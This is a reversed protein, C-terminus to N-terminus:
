HHYDSIAYTTTYEVVMRDCGCHSRVLLLNSCQISDLSIDTISPFNSYKILGIQYVVTLEDKMNLQFM